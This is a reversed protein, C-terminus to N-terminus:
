PRGLGSRTRGTGVSGKSGSHQECRQPRRESGARLELTQAGGKKGTEGTSRDLGVQVLDEKPTGTRVGRPCGM